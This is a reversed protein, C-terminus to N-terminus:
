AYEKDNGTPEEALATKTDGAASKAKDPADTEIEKVAKKFERVGSGLGKALEPIKTAGFLLLFVLLIVILETGGLGMFGLLTEHEGMNSFDM